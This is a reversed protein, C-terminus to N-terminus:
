KRKYDPCKTANPRDPLTCVIGYNWKCDDCLFESSGRLVRFASGGGSRRNMFYQISFFLMAFVLLLPILLIFGRIRIGLLYSLVFLALVGIAFKKGTSLEEM